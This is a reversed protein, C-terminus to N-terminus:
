LLPGLDAETLERVLVRVRAPDPDEDTPTSKPPPPPTKGQELRTRTSTRTSGSDTLHQVSRTLVEPRTRALVRAGRQGVDTLEGLVFWVWGKAELLELGPVLDEVHYYRRRLSLHVDRPTFETRSHKRCWNLIDVAVDVAHQDESDAGLVVGEVAM